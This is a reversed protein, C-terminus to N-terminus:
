YGRVNLGPVRQFHATDATVVPMDHALATAAIWLDNAGIMQRNQKLHRFARGYEWAVHPTSPLLYFPALLAEWKDRSALSQGAALEGATIFTVYYRADQHAEFFALARGRRGRTHERELDILLTTDVILAEGM